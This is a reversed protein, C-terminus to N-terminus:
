DLLQGAATVLPLYDNLRGQDVLAWADRTGGEAIAADVAKDGMNYAAVALAWDGYRAHLDTLLRVAAATEKDVDLREDVQRDVRLGYNRATSPIFMWLGAGCCGPAMSADEPLDHTSFSEYGSEILPIAALEPPIGAAALAADVKAGYVLRNALGRALFARGKDTGQLKDLAVQVSSTTSTAPAFLGRGDAALGTGVTLPLGVLLALVARAPTSRPRCLM